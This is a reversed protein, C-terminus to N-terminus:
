AEGDTTLNNIIAQILKINTISITKHFPIISKELQEM